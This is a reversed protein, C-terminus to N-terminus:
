LSMLFRLLYGRKDLGLMEHRERAAAAEGGHMRIAQDPNLARNDHM